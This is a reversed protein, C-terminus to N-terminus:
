KNVGMKALAAQIGIKDIIRLGKTSVKVKVWKKTVLDFVKKRQLNPLMRRKVKNNAHSVHNAVKPKKGTISCRRSM